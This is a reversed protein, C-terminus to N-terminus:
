KFCYEAADKLETTSQEVDDNLITFEFIGSLVGIEIDKVIEDVKTRLFASEEEGDPITLVGTALQEKLRAEFKKTADLGVWVGIIRLGSATSLKQASEVDADIVIASDATTNTNIISKETIGYRGTEDVMLMERRKELREFNAGDNIRDITNPRVFRGNSEAILRDVLETHGAAKPGSVLLVTKLSSLANTVQGGEEKKSLKMAIGASGPLSLEEGGSFMESIQRSLLPLRYTLFGVATAAFQDATVTSFMNTKGIMPSAEGLLMNFIAVFAFSIFPAAFRVNSIGKGYKAEASGITDTKIYLFFLYFIGGAAGFVYAVADEPGKLLTAVLAGGAAIIATQRILKGKFEDYTERDTEVVEFDINKYALPGEYSDIDYQEARVSPFGEKNRPIKYAYESRVFSAAIPSIESLNRLSKKGSRQRFGYEAFYGDGVDELEVIEVTWPNNLHSKGTQVEEIYTIKGVLVQGDSKGGDLDYYRVIDGANPYLAKKKTATPAEYTPVYGGNNPSSLFVPQLYFQSSTSRTHHVAFTSTQFANIIGILTLLQVIPIKSRFRMIWNSKNIQFAM